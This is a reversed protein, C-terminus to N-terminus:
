PCSLDGLAPSFLFKIDIQKPNEPDRNTLTGESSGAIWNESYHNITYSPKVLVDLEDFGDEDNIRNFALATGVSGLQGTMPSAVPESIYFAMNYPDAAFFSGHIFGLFVGGDKAM